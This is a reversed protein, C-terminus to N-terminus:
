RAKLIKAIQDEGMQRMIPDGSAAWSKALQLREAMQKEVAEDVLSRREAPYSGGPAQGQSGNVSIGRVPAQGPDPQAGIKDIMAKLSSIEDAQAGIKDRYEALVGAIEDRTPLTSVAKTIVDEIRGADLRAAGKKAKSVKVATKRARGASKEADADGTAAKAVAAPVSGAHASDMPCLRPWMGAIHDHILQMALQTNGKPSQYSFGAPVSVRAADSKNGPSPAEHGATIPGRTYRSADPAPPPLTGPASTGKADPSNASHGATIYPRKFMGPAVSGPSPKATPYMAAFNKHLDARADEAVAGDANVIIDAYRAIGLMKEAMGFDGSSMAEAAAERLQSVDLADGLSKLSPYEDYVASAPWAACFADHARAIQYPPLEESKLSTGGQGVSETGNGSMIASGRSAPEDPFAGPKWGMHGLGGDSAGGPDPDTHLGADAEFDEIPQGDPERHAPLRKTGPKAMVGAAPDNGQKAAFEAGCGQCFSATKRVAEGCESCSLSKDKKRSKNGTYRGAPGGRGTADDDTTSPDTVSQSAPANSRDRTINRPRAAGSADDRPAKKAKTMSGSIDPDVDSDRGESDDSGGGDNQAGEDDDDDDDDSSSSSAKPKRAKEVGPDDDEPTSKTLQQEDEAIMLSQAESLTLLGGDVAKLLEDILEDPLERISDGKWSDPILDTRGLAAARRKIHARTRAPNKARGIARIANKLDGVNAIPYGGHPLAKGERALSQRESRSVDRKMVLADQRLAENLRRAVPDAFFPAPEPLEGKEVEPLPQPQQRGALAKAVDAPSPTTMKELWSDESDLVGTLEPAGSKDSKVISFVCNRNAPRDVLSVEGFDGGTIMGRMAKMHSVIRPRMIGVSFARLAGKEVLRKAVPEVVLAKLWHAGDGDRDVQVELGIGAPDRHPNHQVRLNGGSSLWSKLADGSWAPDVIQEDSDVTGDTVRGYVLLDGDDTKETKLIPFSIVAERQSTLADAM